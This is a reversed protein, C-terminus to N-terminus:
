SGSFSWSSPLRNPVLDVIREDDQRQQNHGPQGVKIVPSPRGYEKHREGNMKGYSKECCPAKRSPGPFVPVSDQCSELAPPSLREHNLSPRSLCGIRYNLLNLGSMLASECVKPLLRSEPREQQWRTTDQGGQNLVQVVLLQLTREPLSDRTGLLGHKLPDYCGSGLQPRQGPLAPKRLSRDRM